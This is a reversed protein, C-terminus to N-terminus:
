VFENMREDNRYTILSFDLHMNEDPSEPFSDAEWSM